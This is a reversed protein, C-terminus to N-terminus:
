SQCIGLGFSDKFKKISVFYLLLGQIQVEVVFNLQLYFSETHKEGVVNQEFTNRAHYQWRWQWPTQRKFIFTSSPFSSTMMTQNYVCVLTDCLNLM